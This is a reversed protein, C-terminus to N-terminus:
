PRQGSLFTAVKVTKADPFTKASGLALAVIDNVLSAGPPFAFSKRGSGTIGLKVRIDKQGPFLTQFLTKLSETFNRRTPTATAQLRYLSKDLLVAKIASSGLDVGLIM